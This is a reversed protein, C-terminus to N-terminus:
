GYFLRYLENYLEALQSIRVHDNQQLVNVIYGGLGQPNNIWQIFGEIETKLYPDIVQQPATAQYGAVKGSLNESVEEKLEIKTEIFESESGKKLMAAARAVAPYAMHFWGKAKPRIHAIMYNKGDPTSAGILHGQKKRNTGIFREPEMQLISYRIGSLTVFQANGSAWKALMEKIDKKVDWKGISFLVKGQRDVVTVQTADPYHKQLKNVVSKINVM